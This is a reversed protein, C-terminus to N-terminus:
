NEEICKEVFYPISNYSFIQRKASGPKESSTMIKLNNNEGGKSYYAFFFEEGNDNLKYIKNNGQLSIKGLNEKVCNETISNKAVVLITDNKTAFSLLKYNILKETKILRYPSTRDQNYSKSNACSFLILLYLTLSSYKFICKTM